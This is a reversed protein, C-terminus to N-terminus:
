NEDKIIDLMQTLVQSYESILSNYDDIIEKCM